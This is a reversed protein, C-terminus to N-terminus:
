SKLGEGKIRSPRASPTCRELATSHINENERCRKAAMVGVWGEGM